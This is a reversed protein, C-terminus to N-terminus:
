PRGFDSDIGRTPLWPGDDARLDLDIARAAERGESIAWVILSQGRNADGACYVKPVSSRFKEDTAVNGRKDLEVGLVDSLREAKPGVFGMALLLVDVPITIDSGPQEVFEYGGGPRAKAEVEVAHLAELIGNQGSLKKTMLAFRREGGEQQSSSTRFVVPWQPWPNHTAREEPPAPMLEIQSVEAAGQRLATGLCDSGTDGGGLIIVRKGTVGIDAATAPDGDSDDAQGLAAREGAVRQNQQRLFDMAFHVGILERGPVPLDRPRESGIAILVADFEACLEQWSPADGDGIRAGCRFEVGEAEMLTLRRDIVWKEMKFDPIGYRLLGGAKPAAEYVTVTHGASNLQAAAALGAPGSGVVAVRKDTRQRPPRPVVWGDEFAREIIEKEIQEITVADDNIALVCAGECPAPCLRGTFEPFNNTAALRHYASQWRDRWVLDNWDPIHNGLPCGQTCFPVGCDMCRGGQERAHERAQPLYFEKWDGIRESVPRREPLQRSWRLFGDNKGM